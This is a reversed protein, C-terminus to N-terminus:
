TRNHWIAFVLFGIQFGVVIILMCVRIWNDIM